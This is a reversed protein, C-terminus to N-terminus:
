HQFHSKTTVLCISLYNLVKGLDISFNEESYSNNLAGKVHFVEYETLANRSILCEFVTSRLQNSNQGSYYYQEIMSKTHNLVTFVENLKAELKSSVNFIVNEVDQLAPVYKFNDYIKQFYM